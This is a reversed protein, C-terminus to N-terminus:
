DDHGQATGARLPPTLFIQRFQHRSVDHDADHIRQWAKGILTVFM